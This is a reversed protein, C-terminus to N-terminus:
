CQQKRPSFSVVHVKQDFTPKKAVNAQGPNSGILELIEMFAQEHLGSLSASM